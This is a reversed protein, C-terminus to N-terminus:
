VRLALSQFAKVRLHAIDALALNPVLTEAFDPLRLLLLVGIVPKERHFGELDEIFGTLLVRELLVDHCKQIAPFREILVIRREDLPTEPQDGVM